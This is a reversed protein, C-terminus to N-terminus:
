SIEQEHRNAIQLEYNKISEEIEKRFYMMDGFSLADSDYFFDGTADDVYAKKQLDHSMVDIINLLCKLVLLVIKVYM